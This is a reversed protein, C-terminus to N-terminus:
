GRTTLDPHYSIMNIGEDLIPIERERERERETDTDRDTCTQKQRRGEKRGFTTIV